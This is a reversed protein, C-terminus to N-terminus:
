RGYATLYPMVWHRYLFCIATFQAYYSNSKLITLCKSFKKWSKKVQNLHVWLQMVLQSASGGFLADVMKGVM